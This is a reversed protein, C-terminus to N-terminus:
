EISERMQILNGKIHLDGTGRDIYALNINRKNQIVFANPTPQLFFDEEHLMGKLYLNGTASDIWAVPVNEYNENLYSVKFDAPGPSMTANEFLVGKIMLNGLPTIRAANARSSDKLFVSELVFYQEEKGEMCSPPRLNPDPSTCPDITESPIITTPMTTENTIPTTENSLITQSTQNIERTVTITFTNSIILKDGDTAYIYATYVGPNDSSVTLINQELQAKIEPIENIDYQVTDRDNDIFYEDLNLTATQTTTIALDPMQKTQEPASNEKTKTIIIETITLKSGAELEVVLIPNTTEPINCTETCLATFDYTTVPTPEPEPTAEPEAPTEPTTTNTQNTQNATPATGQTVTFNTEIRLIDDPLVILAIATYEGAVAPAYTNGDLKTTEVGYAVYISKEAADPTITITVTEGLVYTTKDTAIIYQSTEEAIVLGTILNEQAAPQKIEGVLYDVGDIRLKVTARTGDLTGSIRLSTINTLNLLTETPHEFTREYNIIDSIERTGIVFGTPTGPMYQSFLSIVAVLIIVAGAISLQLKTKKHSKVQTTLLSIEDRIEKILEEKSKEGYQENMLITHEIYNLEGTRLQEDLENTSRIIEEKKQELEKIRDEARLFGKRNEPVVFSENAQRM